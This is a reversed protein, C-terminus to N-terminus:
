ATLIIPDGETVAVTREFLGSISGDATKITWDNDKAYIVDSKGMNYIVEIAITMGIKLLPTKNIDTDLFGPVEPEEHLTKGVGHGILSRVVSYGSGEIIDQITKSIHGIRNGAKAVKIAEKLAKEGTELFKKREDSQVKGAEGAPPFKSSQVLVTWAADTNFGRYYVGCDVGIIDGDRLNYNTPIGHVVTDNTSICTAFNYGKVRKFAPKAGKELILKEALKELEIESVGIKTHKLVEFLVDALIKGGQAMIKIEEKTKISIM